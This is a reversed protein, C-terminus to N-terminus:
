KMHLLFTRKRKLGLFLFFVYKKMLTILYMLTLHWHEGWSLHIGHKNFVALTHRRALAAVQRTANGSHYRNAILLEAIHYIPTGRTVAISFDVDTAYGVAPDYQLGQARASRTLLPIGFCNRSTRVCQAAVTRSDIVGERSFRRPLLMKGDEDVFAMDCYVSSVEPHRELVDWAKQLACPSWLMDDSFLLMFYTTNIMGLCRNFNAIGGVDRDHEVLIVRPDDHAYRAVVAQTGDTSCNDSVMVKFKDFTQCLVSEIAKSIFRADNHVPILVTIDPIM